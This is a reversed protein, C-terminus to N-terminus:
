QALARLVDATSRVRGMRPFTLRVAADHMEASVTAMMDEIFILHYGLDYASRATSEVGIDTAIGGLLVTTIGRARLESDLPTGLFAGWSHKTILVDGQQFGADPALESANAPPPPANPDRGPADAPGHDRLNALDVHVYVATGGRARLAKATQAARALIDATAHPVVPRGLIGNQLDILVLATTKPDFSM